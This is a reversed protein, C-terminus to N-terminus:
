WPMGRGSECNQLDLSRTWLWPSPIVRTPRNRHGSFLRALLSRAPGPGEHHLHTAADAALDRAVAARRDAAVVEIVEQNFFM